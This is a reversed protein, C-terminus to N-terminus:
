IVRRFVSAPLRAESPKTPILHKNHELAIDRMYRPLKNISELTKAALQANKNLGEEYTACQVKNGSKAHFSALLKCDIAAEKMAQFVVLLTKVRERSENFIIEDIMEIQSSDVKKGKKVKKTLSAVEKKKIKDREGVGKQIKKREDELAKVETKIGSIVEKIEARKTKAEESKDHPKIQKYDATLADIRMLKEALKDDLAGFQAQEENTAGLTVNQASSQRSLGVNLDVPGHSMYRHIEVTWEGKDQDLDGHSCFRAARGLTQKDSAMTVLPEFIHIHRVAKLDIGENFGQSALMAHCYEGYKNEPHNYFKLLLKLNRGAAGSLKGDKSGKDGIEKQTVVIFRKGKEPFRGEILKGSKERAAGEFKWGLKKLDDLTLRKYGLEKEMANAVALIGQSSWGGGRNEHFASYVYHKEGQATDIKELLAPLKSSFESMTMGREFTYIMNSYKRAAAWYKATQNDAALKDFDTGKKEKRTKLYAEAYKEFQMDSMPYFEPENDTVKPFRTFDSSLDFYSIMGRVEERFRKVDKDDDPNPAKIEPHTPDRIINLLMLVDEMNDGPTATMILVKLGPYKTPDILQSKLYDHEKKQTPLPRFLNHVEDIILVTNNLDIFDDSSIGAMKVSSRKEEKQPQPKVVKKEVGANKPKLAKASGKKVRRIQANPVKKEKPKSVRRVVAKSEPQQISAKRAGGRRQEKLFEASKRVRNSLKAFSLFRIGRKEFAEGILALSAAKSDAKYPSKQFRPYLNYLCEHFNVDPNSALADLSSAFIIDKKTDWFADMVGAATCTNHTVTFDGILYRHNGDLEFGYYDDYGAHKVEIQTVLADKVQRRPSAQKRSLKVPIEELGAGSVSIRYYTGSITEGKYVCSKTCPKVYAAFGLSRCLYTIDDALAKQKQIVDYMGDKYHGDSDIIGALLALRTAKDNCKYESPIHKNNILKYKQLSKLFENPGHGGISSIGYDYKSQYNLSLNYQPLMENLYEIVERDATSIVTGRKSGDGLWLGIIYPDFDIQKTPFEVGTRYGKLQKQLSPALKLYDKVEIHVIRDEDTFTAMYAKAEQKTAFSKSKLTVTKNDIHVAKYPLNKQRPVYTVASKVTHKLCLVHESNVRYSDGKNPIIDYMNDKGRGLALVTRPTSDDGMVLDGVCVDQVPKISGDYMLIPTNYAMCKGSGTSHWAMLGRNTNQSGQRAIHKMVMNVVSQPLSPAMAAPGGEIENEAPEMHDEIVIRPTAALANLDDMDQANKSGSNQSNKTSSEQPKCRNGTGFLPTYLPAKSKVSYWNYLYQEIGDKTVDKPMDKPPETVSPKVRAAAEKSFCDGSSRMKIWSCKPDMNCKFSAKRQMVAKTKPSANARLIDPAEYKEACYADQETKWCQGKTYRSKRNVTNDKWVGRNYKCQVRNLLNHYFRGYPDTMGPKNNEEFHCDKWEFKLRKNLTDVDGYTYPNVRPRYHHGPGRTGCQKDRQEIEFAVQEHWPRTALEALKRRSPTGPREM